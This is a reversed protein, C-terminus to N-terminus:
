NGWGEDDRRRRDYEDHDAYRDAEYGPSRPGGFAAGAAPLLMIILLVIAYVMLAIARIVELVNEAGSTPAAIAGMRRLFDAQWRLLVPNAVALLYIVHGLQVVIMFVSYVLSLVRGWRRVNLLGIGAVILLVSLVFSLLIVAITVPIYSPLERRLFELLDPFPNVPMGPIDRATFMWLLGVGACIYLLLFLSGVVINLIGMVTLLTPRARPM